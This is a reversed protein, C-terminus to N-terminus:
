SKGPTSRRFSTAASILRSAFSGIVFGLFCTVFVARRRLAMALLERYGLRFHEFRREFSRQMRVLPNRSPPLPGDSGHM